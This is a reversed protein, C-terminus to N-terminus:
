KIGRNVGFEAWSQKVVGTCEPGGTLSIYIQAPSMATIEQPTWTFYKALLRYVLKHHAEMDVVKEVRDKDDKDIIIQPLSLKDIIDLMRDVVTSDKKLWRKLKRRINGTVSGGRVLSYVILRVTSEVRDEAFMDLYQQYEGLTVYGVLYIKRGVKCPVPAGIIQNM